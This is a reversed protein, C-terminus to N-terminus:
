NSSSIIPSPHRYKAAIANEKLHEAMEAMRELGIILSVTNAPGLAQGKSAPFLYEKLVMPHETFNLATMWLERLLM